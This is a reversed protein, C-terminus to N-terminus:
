LNLKRELLQFAQGLLIPNKTVPCSVLNEPSSFKHNECSFEDGHDFSFALWKILMLELITIQQLLM